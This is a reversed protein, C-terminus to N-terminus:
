NDNCAKYDGNMGSKMFRCRKCFRCRKRYMLVAIAVFFAVCALLAMGSYRSFNTMASIIFAKLASCSVMCHFDGLEIRNWNSLRSLGIEVEEAYLPIMGSYSFRQPGAGGSLYCYGKREKYMRPLGGLSCTNGEGDIFRLTFIAAKPNYNTPVIADISGSFALDGLSFGKPIKFRGVIPRGNEPLLM